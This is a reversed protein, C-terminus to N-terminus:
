ESKQPWLAEQFGAIGKPIFLVLAILFLGLFIMWHETMTSIYDQAFIFVGAGWSLGGSIGLGGLLAMMLVSGGAGPDMVTPSVSCKMITFLVGSVGALACALMWGCLKYRHVHIGVFSAREENERISELVAGFPSRMIRRTLYFCLIVVILTIFYVSTPDKCDALVLSSLNVKPSPIGILGDDGGTLNRAKWVITYLMMGFAITLLAFAFGGTRVQLWGIPFAILVTAGVGLFMLLWISAAPDVFKLYLGVTYAAIGMYVAHMFSLLGTYGLLVDLSMALLGYILIETALRLYFRNSLIWPVLSLLILITGITAFTRWSFIRIDAVAAIKEISNPDSM